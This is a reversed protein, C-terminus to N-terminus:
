NLFILKKKEMLDEQSESAINAQLSELIFFFDEALQSRQNGQAKLAKAIHLRHSCRKASPQAGPFGAAM